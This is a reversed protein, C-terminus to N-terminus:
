KQKPPMLVTDVMHVLGNAAAIDAKTVLGEDITLFDGAKSATLKTGTTTTLSKSGDIDGSRVLGPVVHHSLVSKLFEPDRSLKDLTAPAVAKFADDTPAFVTVPGSAELASQLGAQKVLRSFTSLEPQTSALMAVTAPPSAPQTSACGTLATLSVALILSMLPAPRFTM